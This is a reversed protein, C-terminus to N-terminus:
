SRPTGDAGVRDRYRNVLPYRRDRGFARRGIKVGPPAQRRKYESAYLLRQIREVTAPDHGRAVIEDLTAEEEVLGELIADLEEYPPLSDQDKQDPRLEASPAKTLIRDPIPDSAGGFPTNANRWACVAYVEVKYLDKLVNYGGCMDGYLTAYGVAMESKNGTTMLMLGRKNSVAMLAVGRVRAQLNEETLDPALGAFEGGLMQAFADVAPSIAIEDLRVGLRRACEAADDLSDASTYRSPLMFARVNEPGLADAAVVAALASDVGGSLGLLVGPFGSKRVYDRLGVVIARYIEEPGQPWAVLPAEVCRWVGGELAWTSAALSPEFAPLRMAIEGSGDLAFSAGDFVLEDQGGVQNVYVMPLGTEAVRARAVATREEDATRRFPSGNPVLLFQAGQEKLVACPGPGWIDECIPTGVSVGRINWLGPRAGPEFVRKEDFVGYNPLDIKFSVGRVEGDALYAIANHARGGGSPWLGTMLCASRGATRAALRELAARCDRVAAPKLALDEPPYGILFLESFLAVDAGAGHAEDMLDLALKENGPIDGLVPNAQVAAVRFRSSLRDSM